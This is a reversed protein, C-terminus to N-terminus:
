DTKKMKIKRKNKMRLIFFPIQSIFLILPVLVIFSATQYARLQYAVLSLFGSIFIILLTAKGHSLGLDLLAHHIHNRDPTFPSIGKLARKTFVRLTDIVPYALVVMAFVPNFTGETDLPTNSIQIAFYAMLLGVSLTGSDGMFISAPPKNYMWFGLLSGIISVAIMSNVYDENCLFFFTFCTLVYIGVSSSLSDLGDILNYANVFFTIVLISFLYSFWLPLEELGFLGYFSEIRVDARWVLIVAVLLQIVFKLNARINVLDDMLGLLFLLSVSFFVLYYNEMSVLSSSSDLIFYVQSFLFGAFIALGGLRPIAGKHVHRGGEEDFLRKKVALKIVLPTCICTVGVGLLFLIIFNIITSTQM